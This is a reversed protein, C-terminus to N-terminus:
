CCLPRRLLRGFCHSRCRQGVDLLSNPVLPLRYRLEVSVDLICLFRYSRSVQLELLAMSDSASVQHPYSFDHICTAPPTFAALLGDRMEEKLTHRTSQSIQSLCQSSGDYVFFGGCDVRTSKWRSGEGFWLLERAAHYQLYQMSLM